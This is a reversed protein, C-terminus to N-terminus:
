GCLLFVDTFGNGEKFVLRHSLTNSWYANPTVGQLARAYLITKSISFGGVGYKDVVQGSIAPMPCLKTRELISGGANFSSTLYDM